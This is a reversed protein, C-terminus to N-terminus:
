EENKDGLISSGYLFPILLAKMKSKDVNLDKAILEKMLEPILYQEHIPVELTVSTKIVTLQYDRIGVKKVLDLFERLLEQHTKAGIEQRLLAEFTLTQNM